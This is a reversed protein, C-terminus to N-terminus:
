QNYSRKEKERESKGEWERQREQQGIDEERNWKLEAYNYKPMFLFLTTEFISIHTEENEIQFYYYQKTDCNLSPQKERWM